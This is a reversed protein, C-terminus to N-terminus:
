NGDWASRTAAARLIHRNEDSAPPESDGFIARVWHGDTPNPLLIFRRGFEERDAEMLAMREDIDKVYYDRKFDNLNDGIFLAVEMEAAIKRRASSKDSTDRFVTLHDEDGFPFGFEVLQALAYEYTRDGQNRSTVYFVEVGRRECWAFFQLSGPVVTSLNRPLWRDWIEDDFFDLNQRILHGWYSSAHLITDDMDTIVALPKGSGDRAALTAELRMRALNYAQHCLAAYEAATEKWAVAWLLPNRLGDKECNDQAAARENLPVIGGALMAGILMRRRREVTEDPMNDDM